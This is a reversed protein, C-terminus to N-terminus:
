AQFFNIHKQNGDTALFALTWLNTNYKKLDMM